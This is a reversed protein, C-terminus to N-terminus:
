FKVVGRGGRPIEPKVALIAPGTTTVEPIGVVEVCGHPFANSVAEGQETSVGGNGQPVAGMSGKPQIAPELVGWEANAVGGQERVSGSGM